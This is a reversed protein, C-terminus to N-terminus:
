PAQALVRERAAPSLLERQALWRLASAIPEAGGRATFGFERQAKSADFFAWRGAVTRAEDSTNTPERGILRAGFAQMGITAVTLWRPADVHLIRTGTLASVMEGIQKLTPNIGTVLYREGPRGRELAAAHVFAVDRVDVYSFGGRGTMARGHALDLIYKTSPTVRWDHEGLVGSPLVTILELGLKGALQWALRESETKARYYPITFEENWATEDRPPADASLNAGVATTSSTMVVRRMGRAAAAELVNTTGVVAPRMIQEADGRTAYVAALHEIADCGAAAADVSARDLVDGHRIEVAVGDLGRLDGGKRVMAVVEHGRSSLERVLNCGVHGNAGTVLVRM